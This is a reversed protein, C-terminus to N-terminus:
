YEEVSERLHKAPLRLNSDGLPIYIGSSIHTHLLGNFFKGFNDDTLSIFSTLADSELFVGDRNCADNFEKLSPVSVKKVLLEMISDVDKLENENGVHYQTPNSKIERIANELGTKISEQIGKWSLANKKQAHSLNGKGTHQVGHKEHVDQVQKVVSQAHRHIVSAQYIGVSQAKKFVNSLVDNTEIMGVQWEEGTIKTGMSEVIAPKGEDDLPPFVGVVNLVVNLDAENKSNIETKTKYDYYM